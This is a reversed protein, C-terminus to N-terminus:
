RKMYSNVVVKTFFGSTLASSARISLENSVKTAKLFDIPIHVIISPGLPRYIRLCNGIDHLMWYMDTFISTMVKASRASPKRSSILRVRPDEKQCLIRGFSKRCSLQYDMLCKVRGRLDKNEEIKAETNIMKRRIFKQCARNTKLADVLLLAAKPFGTRTLAKANQKEVDFQEGPRHAILEEDQGKSAETKM